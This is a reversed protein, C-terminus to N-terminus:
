FSFTFVKLNIYPENGDENGASALYMKKFKLALPWNLLTINLCTGMKM